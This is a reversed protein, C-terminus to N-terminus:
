APGSFCLQFTLRVKKMELEEGRPTGLPLCAAGFRRVLLSTKPLLFESCEAALLAQPGGLRKKRGQERATGGELLEDSKPLM